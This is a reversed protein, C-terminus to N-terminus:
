DAEQTRETGEVRSGKIKSNGPTREAGEERQIGKAKSRVGM